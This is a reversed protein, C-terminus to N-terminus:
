RLWRRIRTLFRVIYGQPKTSGTQSQDILELGLKQDTILQQVGLSPVNHVVQGKKALIILYRNSPQKAVRPHDEYHSSVVQLGAKGLLAALTEPGFIYPHYPNMADYYYFNCTDIYVLGAPSLLRRATKLAQLPDIINELAHSFIVVDVKGDIQQPKYLDEMVHGVFTIGYNEQAYSRTVDSPEVALIQCGTRRHLFALSVGWSAGVELVLHDSTLNLTSTVIRYIQEARWVQKAIRQQVGVEAPIASRTRTLFGRNVIKEQWFDEEYFRVYWEHTPRPKMYKLGCVRCLVYCFEAYRWQIAGAPVTEDSGCILCDVDEFEINSAMFTSMNQKGM